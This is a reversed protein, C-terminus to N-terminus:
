RGSLSSRLRADSRRETASIYEDLAQEAENGRGLRLLARARGSVAAILDPREAEVRLYLALAEGARDIEVLADAKALLAEYLRMADLRIVDDCVAIADTHRGALSLQAVLLLQAIADREYRPQRLVRLADDVRGGILVDRLEVLHDPLELTM